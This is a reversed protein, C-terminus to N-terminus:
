AEGLAEIDALAYAGVILYEVGHENLLVLLDRFDPQVEMTSAVFSNSRASASTPRGPSGSRCTRM